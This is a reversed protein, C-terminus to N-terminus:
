EKVFKRSVTQEANDLTLFYIGPSLNSINLTQHKINLTTQLVEQGQVNHINVAWQKSGAALEITLTTSAPNPYILFDNETEEDEQIGVNIQNIVNVTVM